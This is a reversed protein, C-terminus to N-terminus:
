HRLDDPAQSFTLVPAPSAGGDSDGAMGFNDILQQGQDLRLTNSGNNDWITDHRPRRDTTTGSRTSIQRDTTTGSRTSIIEILQQGQDLRLATSGNNDWIPAFTSACTAEIL